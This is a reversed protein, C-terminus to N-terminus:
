LKRVVWLQEQMWALQLLGVYEPSKGVKRIMGSVREWLRNGPILDNEM